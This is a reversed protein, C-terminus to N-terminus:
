LLKYLPGLLAAMLLPPFVQSNYSFITLPIGFIDLVMASSGELPRADPHSALATFGPLMVLAM